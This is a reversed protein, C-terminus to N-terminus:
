TESHKDTKIEHQQGVLGFRMNIKIQYDGQHVCPTRPFKLLLRMSLQRRLQNINEQAMDKGRVMSTSEQGQSQRQKSDRRRMTSAEICGFKHWTLIRTPQINLLPAVILSRHHWSSVLLGYPHVCLATSSPVRQYRPKQDHDMAFSCQHTIKM